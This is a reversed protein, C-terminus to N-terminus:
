KSSSDTLPAVCSVEFAYVIVPLHNYNTWSGGPPTVVFYTKTIVENKLLARTGYIVNM